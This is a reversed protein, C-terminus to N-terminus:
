RHHSQKNKLTPQALITKDLWAVQYVLKLAQNGSDEYELKRTENNATGDVYPNANTDGYKDTLESDDDLLKDGTIDSNKQLFM